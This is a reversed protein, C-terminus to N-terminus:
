NKVSQRMTSARAPRREGAADEHAIIREVVDIGHSV